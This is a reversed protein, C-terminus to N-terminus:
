HSGGLPHLDIYLKAGNASYDKIEGSKADPLRFADAVTILNAEGAIEVFHDPTDKRPLRWVTGEKSPFILQDDANFHPDGHSNCFRLLRVVIVPTDKPIEISPTTPTSLKYLSTTCGTGAVVCNYHELNLKKRFVGGPIVDGKEFIAYRFKGVARLIENYGKEPFLELRDLKKM